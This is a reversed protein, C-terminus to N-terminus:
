RQWLGDAKLRKRVVDISVSFHRAIHSEVIKRGDNTAGRLDVGAARAQGEVEEFIHALPRGPVLILGALSYAQWEISSYAVPPIANVAAKWESVTSFRLQDFVARHLVVHSLEHALSFRYRNTRSKYTFEDVHIATLDSTIYSEIEFQNQLGSTPVIDIEFAFEVIREIPIPITGEPHHQQLFDGAVTRLRDYPLYPVSIPM